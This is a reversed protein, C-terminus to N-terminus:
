EHKEIIAKETFMLMEIRLNQINNKKAINNQNNTTKCRRTPINQKTLNKSM